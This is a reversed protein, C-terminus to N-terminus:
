VATAEAAIHRALQTRSRIGLKRYVASLHHEVTKPSLFLAAAVERNTLGEAVRLAVQLEAPTLDEGSEDRARLTRGSARLENRAREAWAEAGLRAFTSEATDLIERADVRRGVRRRREGLALQTRATEFPQEARAHWELAREFAAEFEDESALLGRGRAAVAHGWARGTRASWEELRAVEAEAEEVLEARVLAEILDGPYPFVGPEAGGLRGMVRGCRRLHDLADDTREAILSAFGLAEHAYIAMPGEAYQGLTAVAERGLAAAEHAAGRAAELRSLVNRSMIAQPVQGTEQALSLAEAGDARAQAWTGRRFGLLARVMLPYVLRGAASAERAATIQRDLVREALGYQEVWVLYQGAFSIVEAADPLPDGETLLPEAAELDAEVEAGRGVPILALARLLGALLEVQRDRGAALERSRDAAALIGVTDGVMVGGVGSEILLMAATVPEDPALREAEDVLRARGEFLRDGRVELRGRLVSLAADAGTRVGLREAEQLRELAQEFMGAAALDEVAQLTRRLRPRDDATLEAARSAAAAAAAPAGRDRALRAAEDLAAAAPEDAGSAASSLHWARHTPDKTVAALAAHAARRQSAATAEYAHARLLPHRFAIGGGDIRILDAAQVPDLDEEGLGLEHLAALADNLWGSEMAAVVALARAAREPLEAHRRVFAQEVGTSGHFGPALPEIGSRQASSLAAPLERLVLPNGGATALLREAVDPALGPARDRLLTRASAADLQPLALQEIGAVDLGELEGARAGLLALVGEADVRRALFVIARLSGEDLWQLDDVVVLVPGDDAVAGLLSFVAAPVAFPDYPAPAELALATGLARAQVPPIRDRRDLVPALMAHLGAYPIDRESAYGTARLVRMGSAQEVAEDLLATKGM